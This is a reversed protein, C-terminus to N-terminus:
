SRVTRSHIALEELSASSFHPVCCAGTVVAVVDTLDYLSTANLAKLDPTSSM